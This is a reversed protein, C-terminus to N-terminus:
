NQQKPPVSENTEINGNHDIVIIRFNGDALKVAYSVRVSSSLNNNEPELRDVTVSYYGDQFQIQAGHGEKSVYESFKVNTAIGSTKVISKSCSIGAFLSVIGIKVYCQMDMKITGLM